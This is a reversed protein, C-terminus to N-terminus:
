SSLKCRNFSHATALGKKLSDNKRQRLLLSVEPTISKEAFLRSGEVKIVCCRSYHIVVSLQEIVCM